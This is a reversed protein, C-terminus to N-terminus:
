RVSSTVRPFHGLVLWVYIGQNAFAQMCADHGKEPDVQYVYITNIGAKKMLEADTKCQTADV